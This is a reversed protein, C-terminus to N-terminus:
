FFSKGSSSDCNYHGYKFSGIKLTCAAWQCENSASSPTINANVFSQGILVAVFPKSFPPLAIRFYGRLLRSPPRGPPRRGSCGGWVGGRWILHWIQGEPGVSPGGPGAPHAPLGLFIFPQKLTNDASSISLKINLCARKWLKTRNWINRKVAVLFVKWVKTNLNRKVYM